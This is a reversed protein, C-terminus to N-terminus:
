LDAGVKANMNIELLLLLDHLSVSVCSVLTLQHPFFGAHWWAASHAVHYPVGFLKHSCYLVEVWWRLMIFGWFSCIEPQGYSSIIIETYVVGFCLPQDTQGVLIPTLGSNSSMYRSM